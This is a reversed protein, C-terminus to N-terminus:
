TGGQTTVADRMIADDGAVALDCVSAVLQPAISFGHQLFDDIRSM